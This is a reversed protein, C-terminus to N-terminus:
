NYTQSNNQLSNKSSKTKNNAIDNGILDSTEEATKQLARKSVTKFVDTGYKQANDLLKQRMALM